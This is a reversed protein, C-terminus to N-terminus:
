HNDIGCDVDPTFALYFPPTTTFPSFFVNIGEPKRWESGVGLVCGDGAGTSLPEYVPIEETTWGVSIMAVSPRYIAFVEFWGKVGLM